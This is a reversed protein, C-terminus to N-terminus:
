GGLLTVKRPVFNGYQDYVYEEREPVTAGSLEDLFNMMGSYSGAGQFKGGSAQPGGRDRMDTIDRFGIQERPTESQGYPAIKAVNLLTSIPGAGEFFTDNTDIGGGDLADVYFPVYKGQNNYYGYSGDNNFQQQAMALAEAGENTNPNIDPRGGKGGGGSTAIATSGGANERDSLNRYHDALLPMDALQMAKMREENQSM